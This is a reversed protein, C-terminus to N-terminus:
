KATRHECIAKSPSRDRKSAGWDDEEVHQSHMAFPRNDSTYMASLRNDMGRHSDPPLSQSSPLISSWASTLPMSMPTLISLPNGATTCDVDTPMSSSSPSEALPTVWHDEVDTTCKRFDTQGVARLALELDASPLAFHHPENDDTEIATSVSQFGRDSTARQTDQISSIHELEACIRTRDASPTSSRPPSRRSPRLVRKREIIQCSRDCRRCPNCAEDDVAKTCKVKRKRCANCAPPGRKRRQSNSTEVGAANPKAKKRSGATSSPAQINGLDSEILPPHRAPKLTVM